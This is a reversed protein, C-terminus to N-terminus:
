LPPRHPFDKDKTPDLQFKTEPQIFFTWVCWSLKLESYCTIFFNFGWFGKVFKYSIFLVNLQSSLSYPGVRFTYMYRVIRKIGFIVFIQLGKNKDSWLKDFITQIFLYFYTILTILYIFTYCLLCYKMFPDQMTILEKYTFYARGDLYTTQVKEEKFVQTYSATGHHRTNIQM